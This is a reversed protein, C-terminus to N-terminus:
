EKNPILKIDTLEYYNTSGKEKIKDIIEEYLKQFRPEFDEVAYM